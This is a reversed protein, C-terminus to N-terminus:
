SPLTTTAGPTTTTTTAAVARGVQIVVESGVEVDTGAAPTQDIVRKDDGSEPTVDVYEVRM